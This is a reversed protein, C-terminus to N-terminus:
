AEKIFAENKISSLSARWLPLWGKVLRLDKGGSVTCLMILLTRLSRSMTGKVEFFLDRM